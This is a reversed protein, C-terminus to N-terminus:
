SRRHQRPHLSLVTGLCRYARDSISQSCRPARKVGSCRSATQWHVARPLRAPRDPFHEVHFMKTLPRLSTVVLLTGSACPLGGSPSNARLDPMHGHPEPSRIPLLGAGFHEVHFMKRGSIGAPMGCCLITGTSCRRRLLGKRWSLETEHLRVAGSAGQLFSARSLASGAGTTLLSACRRRARGLVKWVGGRQKNKSSDTGERADGAFQVAKGRSIDM